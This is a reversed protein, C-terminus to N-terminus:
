RRRFRYVSRYNARGSNDKFVTFTEAVLLDGSFHLILTKDAYGKEWRAIAWSPDYDSVDDGLENLRTTGWDCDDPHCQGFVRIKKGRETSSIILRTIGETDSNVNAWRGLFKGEEGPRGATYIEFRKIWYHSCLNQAKWKIQNMGQRLYSSIRWSDTEYGHSGGHNQAVDYNRVLPEGNISITVPSYGNGRCNDSKSSLHNM